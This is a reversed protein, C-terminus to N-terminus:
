PTTGWVMPTIPHNKSQGCSSCTSAERAARLREKEVKVMNEILGPAVGDLLELSLTISTGMGSTSPGVTFSFKRETPHVVPSSYLSGCCGESSYWAKVYVKAIETLKETLEIISDVENM